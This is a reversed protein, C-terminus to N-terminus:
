KNTYPPHIIEGIEHPINVCVCVRVRLNYENPGFLSHHQESYYTILRRPQCILSKDPLIDTLNAGCGLGVPELDERKVRM